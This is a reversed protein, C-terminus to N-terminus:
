HESTQTFTKGEEALRKLLPAPTWTATGHRQEFEEIRAVMRQLGATDAYFM